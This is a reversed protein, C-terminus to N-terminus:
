GGCVPPLIALTGRKPIKSSPALVSDETAVVCGKLQHTGLVSSVASLLDKAKASSPIELTLRDGHGSDRLRGYLSIVRKM